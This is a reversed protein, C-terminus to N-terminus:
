QRGIIALTLAISASMQIPAVGPAFVVRLIYHQNILLEFLNSVCSFGIFLVLWGLYPQMVIM